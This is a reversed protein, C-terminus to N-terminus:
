GVIYYAETIVNDNVCSLVRAKLFLTAAVLPLWLIMVSQFMQM